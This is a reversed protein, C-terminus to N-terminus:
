GHSIKRYELPLIGNSERFIEAFRGANSFGVAEAIQGITLDTYSLLQEAQGIRTNQIYESVTVNFYTKFCKKFKTPGMCAIKTLQEISLKDAYHDGIYAAVIDLMEKDTEAIPVHKQENILRHHEFVLSLAEAAKADFFLSASLGTGQFNQLQSLLHVMEPFNGTEDICRFADQPSHYTENYQQSLYSEYYDPGYEIGICRVPINKHILAKYPKYGGLFSKVINSSMRRYPTLEEGAISTYHTVSLCEPIAMDLIIDEKFSFDHLKINYSKESNYIWYYGNGLDEPIRFCTGGDPYSAPTECQEFSCDKILP